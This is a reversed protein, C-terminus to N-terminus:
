KRAGEFLHESTKLVDGGTEFSVCESYIALMKSLEKASQPCFSFVFFLFAFVFFFVFCYFVVWFIHSISKNNANQMCNYGKALLQMVTVWM